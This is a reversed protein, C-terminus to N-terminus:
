KRSAALLLDLAGRVAEQEGPSLHSLAAAVRERREDRRSLMLSEGHPTLALHRVRRDGHAADSEAFRCVMGAKELRDAIQTVASVSIHMEESIQSMTRWGNLLSSCVKLQANPLEALPSEPSVTFLRRAIEPLMQEIVAAHTDDNGESGGKNDESM